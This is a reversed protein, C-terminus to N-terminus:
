RSDPPQGGREGPGPTRRFVTESHVYTDNQVSDLRLRRTEREVQGRFWGWTWGRRVQDTFRKLKGLTRPGWGVGLDRRTQTSSVPVPDM